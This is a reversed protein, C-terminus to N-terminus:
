ARPHHRAHLEQLRQRAVHTYIQTTSLDAHGLLMQVSRLDAGHNVLHTAFSHRLTHPSLPTRVGAVAAHHKVRYWFAQRSMAGGRRTVFAWPAEGGGLLARRGRALHRELWERAVEGLPVLRERGGKGSVRVVGQQLGVVSLPLNTLESVRLGTAYLLELMARDREGVPDDTDPAALLAEVEGETLVGPLAQGRRPAEVRATPDTAVLGQRLAHGYFRRLSSLLRAVSRPRAGAGLREGLAALVDAAEADPLDRGRSALWAAFARLDSRYAALTATALGHEMWLADLFAEIRAEDGEGPRAVPDAAM